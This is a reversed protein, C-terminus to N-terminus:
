SSRDCVEVIVVVSLAFLALVGPLIDTNNRSASSPQDTDSRYQAICIQAEENRVVSRIIFHQPKELIDTYGREPQQLYQGSETRQLGM